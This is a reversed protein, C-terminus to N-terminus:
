NWRTEHKKSHMLATKATERHRNIRRDMRRNAIKSQFQRKDRFRYFISGHNSHFMLLFDYAASRDTDTGTVKLSGLRPKLTV